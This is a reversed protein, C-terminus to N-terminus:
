QQSFICDADLSPPGKYLTIGGAGVDVDGTQQVLITTANVFNGSYDVAAGGTDIALEFDSGHVSGSVPVVTCSTGTVISGSQRLSLSFGSGSWNGSLTDKPGTVCALAASAGVTLAFAYVAGRTLHSPGSGIAATRLHPTWSGALFMMAKSFPGPNDPSPRVTTVKGM